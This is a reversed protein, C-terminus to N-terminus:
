QIVKWHGNLFFPQEWKLQLIDNQNKLKISFHKEQITLIHSSSDTKKITILNSSQFNLFPPLLITVDGKKADVDVDCDDPTLVDSENYTTRKSCTQTSTILLDSAKYKKYGALRNLFEALDESYGCLNIRVFEDTAGMKKGEDLVVNFDRAFLEHAKIQSLKPSQIKVFLTLSGKSSTVVSGPYRKQIETALLEHRKILTKFLDMRLLKEKDPNKILVSVLNLTDAVGTSSPGVTTNFIYYFFKSFIHVAYPDDLPFWIYGFRNGPKGFAKSASMFAFVHKGEKRAQQIWALNKEIYGSGDAGFGPAACVLDAIIINAKTKPERFEGDPNNPSTVFEILTENPQLKIENPHTFAQFHANSYHFLGEVAGPHGAYFPRKEVFLFNKGPDTQAIAYALGYIIQLSGNTPLFLARKDKLDVFLGLSHQMQHYQRLTTEADNYIVKNSPIPMFEHSIQAYYLGDNYLHIKPPNLLGYHQYLETFLPLENLKLNITPVYTTAQLKLSFLFFIIIFPLLIIKPM